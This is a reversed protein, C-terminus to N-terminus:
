ILKLCYSILFVVVATAEGLFLANVGQYYEVADDIDGRKYLYIASVLLVSSLGSLGGFQFGTMVLAWGIWFLINNLLKKM